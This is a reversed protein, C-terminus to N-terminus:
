EHSSRECPQRNRLPVIYKVDSSRIGGGAKLDEALMKMQDVRLLDRKEKMSLQDFTKKNGDDDEPLEIRRFSIKVKIEKDYKKQIDKIKLGADMEAPMDIGCSRRESKTVKTFVHTQTCLFLLM